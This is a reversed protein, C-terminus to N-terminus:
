GIERGYLSNSAEGGTLRNSPEDLSVIVAEKYIVLDSNADYYVFSKGGWVVIADSGSDVFEGNALTDTEFEHLVTVGAYDKLQAKM